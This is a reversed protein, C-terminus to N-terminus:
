DLIKLMETRLEESSVSEAWSRATDHEGEKALYSVMAGIATDRVPGAALATIAEAAETSRHSLWLGFLTRLGADRAGTPIRAEVLEELLATPQTEGFRARLHAQVLAEQM